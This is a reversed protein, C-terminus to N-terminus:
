IESGENEKSELLRQTAELIKAADGRLKSGKLDLCSEVGIITGDEEFVSAVMMPYFKGAYEKIEFSLIVNNRMRPLKRTTTM